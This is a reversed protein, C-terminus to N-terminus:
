RTVNEKIEQLYHELLIRDVFEDIIENYGSEFTKDIVNPKNSKFTLIYIPKENFKNFIPFGAVSGIPNCGRPCYYHIKKLKGHLKSANNIHESIDPIFLFSGENLISTFFTPNATLIGNNPRENPPYYCEFKHPLDNKISLLVVKIEGVGILKTLVGSLQAVIEGIQEMPQTISDFSVTATSPNSKIKSSYDGFRNMKKGLIKRIAALLTIINETVKLPSKERRYYKAFDEWIELVFCLISPGLFLIIFSFLNNDFGAKLVSQWSTVTQNKTSYTIFALLTVGPIATFYKIFKWLIPHELSCFLIPRLWNKIYNFLIKM